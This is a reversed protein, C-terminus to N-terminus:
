QGSLHKLIKEVEAPKFNTTNNLAWNLWSIHEKTNFDKLATGKFKGFYIVIEKGEKPLHKIYSGCGKCYATQHIGALRIEYDNILGCRNCTIDQM